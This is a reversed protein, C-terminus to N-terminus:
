GAEVLLPVLSETPSVPRAWPADGWRWGSGLGFDLSRAGPAALDALMGPSAGRRAVTSGGGAALEFLSEVVTGPALTTTSFILLVKDTPSVAEAFGPFVPVACYPVAEAARREAVGCTMRRSGTNHFGLADVPGLGKAQGTGGDGFVLTQGPMLDASFGSRIQRGAVIPEYSTCGRFASELRVFTTASFDRRAFLVLGRAARNRSRVARFGYLLFGSGHLGEVTSPDMRIEIQRQSM